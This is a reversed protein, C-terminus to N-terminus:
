VGVLWDFASGIKHAICVCVMMSLDTYQIGRLDLHQSMPMRHHKAVLALAVRKPANAYPDLCLLAQDFSICSTLQRAM